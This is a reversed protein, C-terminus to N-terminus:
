QPKEVHISIMETVRFVVLEPCVPFLTHIPEQDHLSQPHWL